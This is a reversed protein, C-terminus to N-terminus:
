SVIGETGTGPGAAPMRASAAARGLLRVPVLSLNAGVILGTAVFLVGGAAVLPPASAGLGACLAAVGCTLTGYAAAAWRHDYLDAFLLPRGTPGTAIGRSRLASWLIFPVVKHAHGVLAELLWAGFAALAAAALAVGVHHHRPVVLAAALALGVGVPVWAAATLVFVLHLDVARRRHRVHVALSVLHAGLGVAAVAGGVWALGDASWALAPSALAVGGALCWVAVRGSRHRGPLHALLFMPWLKEAVGVYTLGLWGFLGLVGMALDVHGSLVFWGGQRDGVFAVGLFSTAVAGALGLRLATVPTGKGRVSLPAALNVALLVISLGALAGSVATVAVQETALGFPLLWSAGLWTVFVMRALIVSRLPRGTIVPTFQHVAGLVGTALTALVGLHVAAVVPDASPDSGAWGRAWVWAAGCAALGLSAAALFALPVSPPPVAGPLGPPRGPWAGAAATSGSAPQRGPRPEAASGPAPKSGELRPAEPRMAAQTM